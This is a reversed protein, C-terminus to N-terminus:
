LEGRWVADLFAIDNPNPFAGLLCGTRVWWLNFRFNLWFWRVHRIGWLRSM